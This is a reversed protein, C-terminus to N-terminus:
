LPAFSAPLTTYIASFVVDNTYSAGHDDSYSLQYYHLGSSLLTTGPFSVNTLGGATSIVPPPSVASGDIQLQISGAVLLTDGNTISAFYPYYSAPVGVQDDAPTVSVVQPGAPFATTPAQAFTIDDVAINYAGGEVEGAGLTSALRKLRLKLSQGPAGTYNINVPHNKTADSLFTITQPGSLVNTGSLVSVEYTFRETSAYYPDFNFSKIEVSALASDPTFTLRHIDGIDSDNLQVATWVVGGDYYYDWETDAAGIGSWNLGINPTGFGTVTVGSSSATAYSGFGQNIISNEVQGAPLSNFDLITDAHAGRGLFVGLALLGAPRLRSCKKIKM